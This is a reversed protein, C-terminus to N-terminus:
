AGGPKPGEPWRITAFFEDTESGVLAFAEEVLTETAALAAARPNEAEAAARLRFEWKGLLGQLAYATRTRSRWTGDWRFFSNLSSMIAVALSVITLIEDRSKLDPQAAIAPLLLSGIVVVLGGARFLLRPWGKHTDYWTYCPMIQKNVLERLDRVVLEYEERSSVPWRRLHSYSRRLFPPYEM